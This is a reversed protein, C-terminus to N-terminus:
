PLIILSTQSTELSSWKLFTFMKEPHESFIYSEFSLPSFNSQFKKILVVRLNSMCLVLVAFFPNIGAIFRHGNIAMNVVIKM